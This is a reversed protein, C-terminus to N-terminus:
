DLIQAAASRMFGVGFCSSTGMRLCAFLLEDPATQPKLSEVMRNIAFCFGGEKESWTKGGPTRRERTVKGKKERERQTVSQEATGGRQFCLLLKVSRRCDAGIPWYFKVDPKHGWRIPRTQSEGLRPSLPGQLPHWEAPWLGRGRKGGWPTFGCWRRWEWQKKFFCDGLDLETIANSCAMILENTQIGWYNGWSM